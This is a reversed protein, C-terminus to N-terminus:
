ASSIILSQQQHQPVPLAWVATHNRPREEETYILITANGTTMQFIQKVKKLLIKSIDEKGAELKKSKGIGRGKRGTRGELNGSQSQLWSLLNIQHKTCSSSHFASASPTFSAISAPAPPNSVLKPTGQWDAASGSSPNGVDEPRM